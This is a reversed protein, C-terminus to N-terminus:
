IAGRKPAKVAPLAAAVAARIGDVQHRYRGEIEQHGRVAEDWTVYSRVEIRDRLTAPRGLLEGLHSEGYVITEFLMPPPDFRGHLERHPRFAANIVIDGDMLDTSAIVLNATEFWRAWREIDLCPEPVCGNLMWLQTQM